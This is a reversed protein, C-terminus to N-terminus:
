GVVSGGSEMEAIQGLRREHRGGEYGTAVFTDVIRRATDPDTHRGALTVVNANNHLRAMRAFEPDSIQVARVGRV